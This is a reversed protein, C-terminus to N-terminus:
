LPLEEEASQPTEDRQMWLDDKLSVPSVLAELAEFRLIPVRAPAATQLLDMQPEEGLSTLLRQWMVFQGRVTANTELRKLKSIREGAFGDPRFGDRTFVYAPEIAILWEDDNRWFRHRFGSHRVYAIDGNAKRKSQVVARKTEKKTSFYSFHRDLRGPEPPFYLAQAARSWHLTDDLQRSLTRNLLEIFQYEDDQDDTLAFEATDFDEISGADVVHRLPSSDINLFTILRGNRAVWEAPPFDCIELLAKRVARGHVHQTEAIYIKRPLVVRLANFLVPEEIQAPPIWIGPRTEDVAIQALKDAAPPSLDDDVKNFRLRRDTASIERPIQKWFVTRDCIRVLVVIVPVNADRWYNFDEERCLYEFETDTEATYRASDTTKIQIAIIKAMPTGTAANRIEAFADIGAETRCYEGFLYGMANIRDKVLAVGHEGTIQSQTITKGNM